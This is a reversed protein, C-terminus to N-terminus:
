KFPTFVGTAPDFRQITGGTGDVRQQVTQSVRRTSPSVVLNFPVGTAKAYAAQVKLQVSDDIEMGSKIETIGKRLIDPVSRGLGEAGIKTTNKEIKTATRAANLANLVAREFELGRVANALITFVAAIGALFEGQVRTQPFSDVVSFTTKGPDNAFREALRALDDGPKLISDHYLRNGFRAIVSALEEM